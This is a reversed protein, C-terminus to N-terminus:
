RNRKGAEMAAALQASTQGVAQRNQFQPNNFVAINASPGNNNQGRSTGAPIMWADSITGTQKMYSLDASTGSWRETPNVTGGDHYKPLSLASRLVAGGQHFRPFKLQPNVAVHTSAIIGGNHFRALVPAVTNIFAQITGGFHFRPAIRSLQVVNIAPSIAGGFHFRPTVTAQARNLKQLNEMGIKAATRKNIVFEGDEAIIMREGAKLEGGGMKSSGSMQGGDHFRPLTERAVNSPNTAPRTTIIGGAHFRSESFTQISSSNISGGTHFHSV